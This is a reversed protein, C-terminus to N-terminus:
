ENDKELEKSKESVEELSEVKFLFILNPGNRKFCSYGTNLSGYCLIPFKFSYSIQYVNRDEWQIKKPKSNCPNTRDEFFAKM